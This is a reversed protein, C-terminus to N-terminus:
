FREIREAARKYDRELTEDYIAHIGKIVIDKTGKVLGRNRLEWYMEALEGDLRRKMLVSQKPVLDM